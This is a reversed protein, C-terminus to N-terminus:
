IADVIAHLVAIPLVSRTRQYAFAFVAGLGMQFTLLTIWAERLNDKNFVMYDIPLHTLGFIMSSGFLAWAPNRWWAELRTLLIARFLVEEPLGAAFFYEATSSALRPLDKQHEFIAYSSAALLAPLAIWWARWNWDMGQARLGYGAFFLVVVPLIVMEIVKPVTEFELSQFCNFREPLFFFLPGCIGIRWEAWLIILAMAFLFELRPKKIAPLPAAGSRSMWWFSLAIAVAGGVTSVWNLDSRLLLLSWWPLALLMLTAIAPPDHVVRLASERADRLVSAIYGRPSFKLARMFFRKVDAGWVQLHASTARKTLGADSNDKIAPM